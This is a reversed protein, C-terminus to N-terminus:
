SMTITQDIDIDGLTGTLTLNLTASKIVFELTARSGCPINKNVLVLNPLVQTGDKTVLRITNAIPTGGTITANLLVDDASPNFLGVVVSYNFQGVTSTPFKSVAHRSYPDNKTLAEGSNYAAIKAVLDDAMNKALNGITATGDKIRLMYNGLAKFQVDTCKPKCQNDLFLGHEQPDVRYCSDATIVFNNERDPEVFNISKIFLEESCPDFLGTGSGPIVSLGTSDFTINAGADIDLSQGASITKFTTGNNELLISNVMKPPNICNSDLVAATGDAFTYTASSSIFATVGRGFIIKIGYDSDQSSYLTNQVCSTFPIAKVLTTLTSGSLDKLVVTLTLTSTGTNVVISTVDAKFFNASFKYVLLDVLLENSITLTENSVLSSTDKFPYKRLQNLSRYELNTM